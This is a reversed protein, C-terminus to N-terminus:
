LGGGKGRVQSARSLAWRLVNIEKNDITVTKDRDASVSEGGFVKRYEADIRGKLLKNMRMWAVQDSETYKANVDFADKEIKADAINRAEQIIRKVETDFVDRKISLGDADDGFRQYADSAIIRSM